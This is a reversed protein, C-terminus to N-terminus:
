LLSTIVKILNISDNRAVFPFQMILKRPLFLGGCLTFFPQSGEGEGHKMRRSKEDIELTEGFVVGANEVEWRKVRMLFDWARNKSGIAVSEAVLVGRQRYAQLDFDFNNDKRTDKNRM